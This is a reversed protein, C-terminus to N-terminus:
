VKYLNYLFSYMTAVALLKYCNLVLKSRNYFLGLSVAVFLPYTCASWFRTTLFASVPQNLFLFSIYMLFFTNAVFARVVKNNNTKILIYLLILAPLRNLAMEIYGLVTFHVGQEADLYSNGLGQFAVGGFSLDLVNSSLYNFSLYFLPFLYLLTVYISKKIPVLSLLSLAIYLPMSNHFFISAFMGCLGIVYSAVRNKLPFLIFSYFYYMVFFALTNRPACYYAMLIVVFIFASFKFPAKIRRMFLVLMYTSLGWVILRWLYYDKSTNMIFFSYIDELSYPSRGLAVEDYIEYYHWFDAAAFGYVSFLTIIIAFFLYGRKSSSLHYMDKKYYFYSLLWIITSFLLQAFTVKYM